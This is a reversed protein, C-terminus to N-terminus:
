FYKSWADMLDQPIQCPKGTDKQICVLTTSATTILDGAPNYIEYTFLVRTGPLEPVTLKVLLEDDYYAPRRFRISFDLVPLLIGSDELQRYSFGLHRLAEVRAVEFYAAYNGYYVYGMRDTEAYRVRIKTEFKYM